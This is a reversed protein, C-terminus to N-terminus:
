ALMENSRGARCSPVRAKRRASAAGGARWQRSDTGRPGGERMATCGDPRGGQQAAPESEEVKPGGQWRRLASGLRDTLRLALPMAVKAALRGSDM